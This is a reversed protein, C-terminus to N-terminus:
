IVRPLLENVIKKAKGRNKPGVFLLDDMKPHMKITYDINNKSLNMEIRRIILPHIFSLQLLLIDKKTKVAKQINNEM